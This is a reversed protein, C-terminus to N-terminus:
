WFVWVITLISVFWLVWVYVCECTVFGVCWVCGCMVFGGCVCVCVCVNSFWNFCGCCLVCVLQFLWLVMLYGWYLIDGIYVTTKNGLFSQVRILVNPLGFQTKHWGYSARMEESTAKRSSVEPDGTCWVERDGHSTWRIGMMLSWYFIYLTLM